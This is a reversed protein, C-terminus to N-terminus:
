QLSELPNHRRIYDGFLPATFDVYGRQPSYILGKLDILNQRVLATRRQDAGLLASVKATQQPGDGLEAIAALYRREAATARNFRARHFGTDLQEQAITDAAEADRSTIPTSAAVLWAYRGYTQLFFPYRDARTLIFDLAAQEYEVGERRAPLTLAAQAADDTLRGIEVYQFLREAYSSAEALRGPLQPLGACILAVPLQRQAIRHFAALLAQLDEKEAFQMEDFFFAIGGGAERATEGLEVLVDQLDVDLQGSDGRGPKPDVDVKFTIGAPMATISFSSIVSLSRRLRKRVKEHRALSHAAQAAVQALAPRLPGRGRLEIYGSGWGAEEAETAFRNLLVTKGVGRLGWLALNQEPRGAALRKLMVGFSTQEGDRGALEPPPTGAGPAYPNLVEDV